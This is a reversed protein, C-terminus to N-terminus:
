LLNEPNIRISIHPPLRLLKEKLEKQPWTGQSVKMLGHIISNGRSAATFAPFVDITQPALLTKIAAMENSIANKKGEISIKILTSYPPYSFQKRDKIENRWFDGLNGKGGYEFVKEEARRTQIIFSQKALSRLRILMYMMREQISFDPLALLSDISAVAVHEIPEHLHLLAL